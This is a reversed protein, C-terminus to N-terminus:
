CILNGRELPLWWGGGCPPAVVVFSTWAVPVLTSGRRHVIRDLRCRRVCRQVVIGRYRAVDAVDNLQIVLFICSDQIGVVRM